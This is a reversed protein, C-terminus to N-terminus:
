AGNAGRREVTSEWRWTDVNELDTAHFATRVVDGDGVTARGPVRLLPVSWNTNEHAFPSSDVVTESDFWARFFVCLGDLRGPRTATRALELAVPLEDPDATALDIRLAPEPEGLFHSFFPPKYLKRRYAPNEPLAGDALQAFSIGHLEQEWIFPISYADRLTVPELFFEFRAPLIRGSERLLRRRLDAVNTVMREEFLYNGMQEHVLVDVKGDLDFRSSHTRHFEVNAVGNAEAVRRAVDLIPSHDVGHVVRAGARAALLALIGTGTGLDVVVDGPRVTAPLADAYADVRVSDALMSEHVAVNAFQSRNRLKYSLKSSKFREVSWRLADDLVRRPTAAGSRAAIM